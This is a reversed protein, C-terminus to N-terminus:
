AADEPPWATSNLARTLAEGMADIEDVRICLPPMVVVTNLIPRTLLGFRRAELCLAAGGGPGAKVDFAALMGLHRVAIVRPHTSLRQMLTALAEIKPALGEIVQEQEFIELSALAAACALPNGAYSHGYAFFRTEQPEGLFSEFVEASCLTAALAMTGGTIGKALCLFDPLVQEHQWAFMQGTRGFGTMVEDFILWVAHRDCWQRLRRLMGQPWLRMGGAGQVLPEVILAAVTDAQEQGMAELADADSLRLGEYGWNGLGAKLWNVAGLGAAGLTDGHYAADFHVVKCRRAQGRQRQGQLAMRLAVEIATSGNDSFFVRKLVGGGAVKLLAAALLVAPEHTLGLFSCHDLRELQAVLARRIQPHCHGHVNTWISANADLYTRGQRDKLWVGSGSEIVLPEHQPSCWQTMRTFPHWLCEQDLAAIRDMDLM